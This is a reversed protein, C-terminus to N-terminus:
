ERRENYRSRIDKFCEDITKSGIPFHESEMSNKAYYGQVLNIYFTFESDDGMYFEDWQEDTLISRVNIQELALNDFSIVEFMSALTKISHKMWYQNTVIDEFNGYYWETGRGVMKYGLILIKLNKGALAKMQKSTAIGNIVHIVANPIEQVKSIFEDTPNVLSIGLGNILKSDILEKIKDYEREFHVQNVTMNVIVKQDKMQKLFSMLQPHSLDNGNIALETYPHLSSLLNKYDDFNCHKGESSCGAYCWRCNNDCYETINLDCSESFEPIFNDEETERIKTGDSYISVTYNGNKYSGIKKKAM